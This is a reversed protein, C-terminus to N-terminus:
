HDNEDDSVEDSSTERIATEDNNNVLLDCIDEPYAELIWDVSLDENWHLRPDDHQLIPTSAQRWIRAVYNAQKIHKLLSSQCVPLLSLYIVM